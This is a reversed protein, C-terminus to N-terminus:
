VKNIHCSLFFKIFNEPDNEKYDQKILVEEDKGDWKKTWNENAWILLFYFDIDKENLLIILPKELLIKGSFWYYYIGFGYIGHSKALNIQKKLTESNSLEYYNLYQNPDGPKRPQHHGKYLPQAKKVNKWETFGKGWWENNEQIEHFQPLFLAIAKIDSSYNSFNINNEYFGIENDINIYSIKEKHYKTEIKDISTYGGKDGFCLSFINNNIVGYKYLTNIFNNGNNCLGM